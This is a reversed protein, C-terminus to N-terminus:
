LFWKAVLEDYTGNDKVNKLGTNIKELLETNGKAVAMCVYEAEEGSDVMDVVGPNAKIYSEAVPKDILIAQVDGNKLQTACEAVQNLLVAEKIKGEEALAQLDSAEGTGMQAAVKMDPTLDELSQITTDGAKVMLVKATEMYNDTFDVQEARKDTYNMGAAIVDCNGAQLAGILGAFEFAQFEFEFGQDDAIAQMLDIDFGIINGEDDTTEFPPYGPETGIILKEVDGGSDNGCGVFMCMSLAVILVLSLLKISKKM